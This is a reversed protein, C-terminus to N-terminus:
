NRGGQQSLSGATYSYDVMQPDVPLYTRQSRRRKAAGRQDGRQNINGTSYSADIMQPEVLPPTRQSRRRKAAGRQNGRQNINGTLYSVDMLQPAVQAPPQQLSWRQAEDRSCWAGAYLVWDGAQVCPECPFERTKKNRYAWSYPKKCRGECGNIPVVVQYWSILHTCCYAEIYLDCRCM